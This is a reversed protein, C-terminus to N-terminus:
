QRTGTGPTRNPGRPGASSSQAATGGGGSCAGGAGGAGGAKGARSAKGPRWSSVSPDGTIWLRWPRGDDDDSLGVRPGTSVAADDAPSGDLLSVRAGTDALTYGLARAVAAPGRLDTGRAGTPTIEHGARLLVASAHGVPGTVINMLFHVGYSLYVYAHGSPGFMVRTRPTPGRRAHSGPDGPGDYAEVETLRVVTAHHAVHRGLLDRAVEVVPRELDIGM